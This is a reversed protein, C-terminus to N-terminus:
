LPVDDFSTSNHCCTSNHSRKWAKSSGRGLWWTWSGQFSGRLRPWSREISGRFRLLSEELSGQSRLLSGQISRQFSDKIRSLIRSGQFFGQLILWPGQFKWLIRMDSLTTNMRIQITCKIENEFEKFSRENLPQNARRPAEICLKLMGFTVLAYLSSNSWQSSAQKAWEDRPTKRQLL